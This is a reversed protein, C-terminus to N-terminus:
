DTWADIDSWPLENIWYGRGFCSLYMIMGRSEAHIEVIEKGQWKISVPDKGNWHVSHILAEPGDKQWVIM